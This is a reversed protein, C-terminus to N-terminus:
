QARLRFINICGLSKWGSVSKILARMKCQSSVEQIHKPSELKVILGRLSDKWNDLLCLKRHHHLSSEGDTSDLGAAM